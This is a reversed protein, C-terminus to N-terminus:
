KSILYLYKYNAGEVYLMSKQVSKLQKETLEHVEVTVTQGEEVPEYETDSYFEVLEEVSLDTQLLIAATTVGNLDKAVDRAILGTYAPHDHDYIQQAFNNIRTNENRNPLWMALFIALLVVPLIWPKVKDNM